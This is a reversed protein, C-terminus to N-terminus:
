KEKLLSGGSLNIDRLEPNGIYELTSAGSVNADLIGELNITARSAGIVKMDANNVPFNSLDIKSAGSVLSSLDNATGKASLISAGSVEIEIDELYINTLKLNSAGSLGLIFTNSNHFGDVNGSTAGSLILRDLQPMTIEVKRFLAGPNIGEEFGILLTNESQNIKVNDIIKEDASIIVSYSSSKSVSIEFAWGAEIATFDRFLKEETELNGPWFWFYALAVGFLVFLFTSFLLIIGISSLAKNNGLFHLM